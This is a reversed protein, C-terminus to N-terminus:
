AVRGPRLFVREDVRIAPQGFHEVVHERLLAEVRQEVADRVREVVEDRIVRQLDVLGVVRAVLQDRHESAGLPLVLDHACAGGEPLADRAPGDDVALRHERVLRMEVRTDGEDGSRRRLGLREDGDRQDRAPRQLAREVHVPEAFRSREVLVLELQRLPEAVRGRQREVVRLHAGTQLVLRLGVRQGAEVVVAVEVLAKAGLQHAGAAGAIRDGQQHEVDVLELADVVDAAVRDAVLDEHAQGLERAREHARAVDDAADAAFLEGHDHRRAVRPIREPARSAQGLPQFRTGDIGSSLDRDGDADGVSRLVGAVRTLEDVAGLRRHHRRLGAALIPDDDVRAAEALPGVHVLRAAVYARDRM